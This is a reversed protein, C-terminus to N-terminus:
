KPIQMETCSTKVIFCGVQSKNAFDPPINASSSFSNRFKGIFLMKYVTLQINTHIKSIFLENPTKGEYFWLLITIVLVEASEYLQSESLLM